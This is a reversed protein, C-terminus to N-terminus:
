PPTGGAARSADSSVVSTALGPTLDAPTADILVRQLWEFCLLSWILLRHNARGAFHEAVVERIM